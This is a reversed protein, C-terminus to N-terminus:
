NQCRGPLGSWPVAYQNCLRPFTSHAQLSHPNRPPREEQGQVDVTRASPTVAQVSSGVARPFRPTTAPHQAGPMLGYNIRTTSTTSDPLLDPVTTTAHHAVRHVTLTQQASCGALAVVAALALLYKWARM